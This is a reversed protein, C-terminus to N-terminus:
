PTPTSAYLALWFRKVTLYGCQKDRLSTMNKSTLWLNPGIPSKTRRPRARRPRSSSSLLTKQLSRIPCPPSVLLCTSPNRSSPSTAHRSPNAPSSIARPPPCDGMAPNIRVMSCLFASFFQHGLWFNFAARAPFLMAWAMDVSGDTSAKDGRGVALSIRRSASWHSVLM